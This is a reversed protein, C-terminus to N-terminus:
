KIDKLVESLNFRLKKYARHLNVRVWNPNRGVSVAIQDTSFGKFFRLMILQRYKQPLKLINRRVIAYTEEDFVSQNDNAAHIDAENTLVTYKRRKRIHIIAQQRVIQMFWGGFKAPKKLTELNVYAKVFSNQIVDEAAPPSGTISYAVAFATSYYKEVLPEFAQKKGSLVMRVCYNDKIDRNKM